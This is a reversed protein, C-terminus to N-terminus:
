AEVEWPWPQEIWKYCSFQAASDLTLPGYKREYDRTAEQEACIQRRLAEFAEQCSPHTDLFLQTEDVAFSSAQVRYLARARDCMREKM